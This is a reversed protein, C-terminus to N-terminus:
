AAQQQELFIRCNLFSFLFKSISNPIQNLALADDYFRVMRDRDVLEFIPGDDLFQARTEAANLDFLSAISANFGKKHRDNRVKDNLIGDVAQRLM